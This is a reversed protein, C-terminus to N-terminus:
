QIVVWQGNRKEKTQNGVRIKTGEPAPNGGQRNQSQPNARPTGGTQGTLPAQQTAPQKTVREKIRPHMEDIADQERQQETSIKEDLEKVEDDDVAFGQRILERKESNLQTVNTRASSITAQLADHKEKFSQTFGERDNKRQTTAAAVLHQVSEVNYTKDPDLGKVDYYKQWDAGTMSVPQKGGGNQPVWYVSWKMHDAWNVPKGNETWGTKEDHDLGTFDINKTILRSSGAPPAFAQPNNVMTKMMTPGNGNEANHLISAPKAGNEIAWKQLNQEQEEEKELQDRDRYDAERAHALNEMNWHELTAQHQIKEEEFKQQELSMSQQKQAQEQAAAQRQYEQQQVANGGRSFGGLFGGVSGGSAKGESGMAGGLLAGALLSRFISGPKQKVPEGTNPDRANDFLFSTVQGLAHHRAAVAAQQPTPQPAQQPQQQQPPAAPQGVPAQGPPPQGVLAAGPTQQQPAPPEGQAQPLPFGFPM